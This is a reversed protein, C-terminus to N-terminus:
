ILTTTMIYMIYLANKFEYNIHTKENGSMFLNLLVSAAIKEHLSNKRPATAKM